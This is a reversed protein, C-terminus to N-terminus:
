KAAGPLKIAGGKTVVIPQPFCAEPPADHAIPLLLTLHVQGDTRKVEGLIFKCGTADAPLVAGEPLPGFDYPIGNITLVDGRKSLALADGRVQPSFSIQM